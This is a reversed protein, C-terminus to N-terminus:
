AFLIQGNKQHDGEPDGVHVPAQSLDADALAAKAAAIEEDTDTPYIDNESDNPIFIFTNM